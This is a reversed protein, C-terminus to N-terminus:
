QVRRLKAIFFNEMLGDPLIRLSGQLAPHFNKDQWSKLIPYGTVFSFDLPVVEFCGQTKRLFYDVVEENEEPAFTCTSYVIDGGPQILKGAKLLLGKQKHAMEKIKRPSWYAYSKPDLTQFRGESSCPADLLIKDFVDERTQKNSKKKDGRWLPHFWRADILRCEVISADMLAVVSKLKYYRGRVTDLATINGQNNMHAAIQTTKSGPAACMDLVSDGPRPDLCLVPLMSSLSQIYVSGEKFLPHDQLSRADTNEISLAPAYWSIEKFMIGDSKLRAKAEGFAIKLTNIRLTVPRPRAFLEQCREFTTSPVITRLRELFPGPLKSSPDSFKDM